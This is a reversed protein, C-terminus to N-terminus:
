DRQSGINLGKFVYVTGVGTSGIKTIWKTELEALYRTATAKSVACITQVESNSIHGNEQIYLIIKRFEEKLDFQMLGKHTYKILQLQFDTSSVSFVPPAIRHAKCANIIKEKLIGQIKRYLPVKEEATTQRKM